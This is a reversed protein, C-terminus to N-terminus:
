GGSAADESLHTLRTKALGQVGPGIPMPELHHPMANFFYPNFPTGFSPTTNFTMENYGHDPPSTFAVLLGFSLGNVVM